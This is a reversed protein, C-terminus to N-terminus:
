DESPPPVSGTAECGNSTLTDRPAEPKPRWPEKPNAWADEKSFGDETFYGLFGVVLNQLLADPDFDEEAGNMTACRVAYKGAERIAQSLEQKTLWSHGPVVESAPHRTLAGGLKRLMLVSENAPMRFVMPPVNFNDPGKDYIWHTKPLPMSMTGFAHVAEGADNTLLHLTAKGGAAEAIQGLASNQTPTGTEEQM